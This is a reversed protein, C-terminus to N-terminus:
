MLATLGTEGGGTPLQSPVGVLMALLGNHTDAPEFLSGAGLTVGFTKDAIVQTYRGALLETPQFGPLLPDDNAIQTDADFIVPTGDKLAFTVLYTGDATFKWPSGSAGVNYTGSITLEPGFATTSLNNGVTISDGLNTDVWQTGDWGLGTIFDAGGQGIYQPTLGEVKQIVLTMYGAVTDGEGTSTADAAYVSAYLSDYTIGQDNTIESATGEKATWPNAYPYRAGQSETPGTTGPKGKGKSGGLLTMAFGSLTDKPNGTVDAIAEFLTLELRVNRGKQIPASELADGINVFDIAIPKEATANASINGAQWENGEVGQAFYAYGTDGTLYTPTTFTFANQTGRLSPATEPFIAPFSLNNGATTEGPRGGGGGGGPAGGGPSGGGGGIGGGANGGSGSGIGRGAASAVLSAVQLSKSSLLDLIATKKM